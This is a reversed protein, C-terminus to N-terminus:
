PVVLSHTSPHFLDIAWHKEGDRKKLLYFFFYFDTSPMDHMSWLLLTKAEWNRNTWAWNQLKVRATRANRVGVGRTGHGCKIKEAKLFCDLKADGRLTMQSIILLFKSGFCHYLTVKQLLHFLETESDIASILLYAISYYLAFALPTIWLITSIFFM